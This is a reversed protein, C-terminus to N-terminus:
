EEVEIVIRKCLCGNKNEEFLYIFAPIDKTYKLIELSKPKLQKYIEQPSINDSIINCYNNVAGSILDSLSLFDKSFNDSEAQKKFPLSFALKLGTLKPHMAELNHQLLLSTFDLKENDQVISDKDTMWWVGYENELIFSLILSPFSAIRFSKELIKPNFTCNNFTPNKLIEEHLTEITPAFLSETTVPIAVCYIFGKFNKLTVDFWDRLKGQRTKPKIDKYSAEGSYGKDSKLEIIKKHWHQLTSYTQFTFTYTYYKSTGDEGAYDSSFVINNNYSFDLYSAFSISKSTNIVSEVIRGFRTEKSLEVLNKYFDDNM